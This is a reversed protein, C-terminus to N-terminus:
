VGRRSAEVAEAEDADGPLSPWTDEEEGTTGLQSSLLEVLRDLGDYRSRLADAAPQRIGYGIGVHTQLGDPLGAGQLWSRVHFAFVRVSKQAVGLAEALRHSSWAMGPECMLLALMVVSTGHLGSLEAIAARVAPQVAEQRALPVDGGATLRSAAWSIRMACSKLTRQAQSEFLTDQIAHLQRAMAELTARVGSLEEREGM